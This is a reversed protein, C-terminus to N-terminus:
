KTSLKLPNIYGYSEAIDGIKQEIKEFIEPEIKSLYRANVEHNIPFWKEKFRTGFPIKEGERPLMNESYELDLFDCLKRTKSEPEMLFDEFRIHTFNTLHSKDKDITRISNGWHQIAIDLLKDFSLFKSYRRLDGAKGKAARYCTVYPNRTVLVFHPNCDALCKQILRTKVVYIQSKDVFRARQTGFRGLSIKIAKKLKAETEVTWDNETKHYKDILDNSAYSWSRPPSFQPHEPETNLFHGSMRLDKPLCLEMVTAMEDAGTWYTSPGTVCVSDPHRRFVRSIFSIGDGQNGIFFIPKQIKINKYSKWSHFIWSFRKYYYFLIDSNPQRLEEINKIENINFGM